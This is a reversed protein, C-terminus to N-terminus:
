DVTEDITDNSAQMITNVIDGNNQELLEHVRDRSINEVQEMVIDVSSSGPNSQIDPNSNNQLSINFYQRSNPRVYGGMFINNTNSNNNENDELEPLNNIYEEIQRRQDRSFNNVQEFFNHLVKNKSYKKNYDNLGFWVNIDINNWRGKCKRCTDKRTYVSPEVAMRNNCKPCTSIIYEEKKLIFEM